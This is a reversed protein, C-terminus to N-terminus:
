PTPHPPTPPPPAVRDWAAASIAVTKPGWEGAAWALAAPQVLVSGNAAGGV